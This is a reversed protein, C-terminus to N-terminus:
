DDSGPRGSRGASRPSDSSAEEHLRQVVREPFSPKDALAAMAVEERQSESIWGADALIGAATAFNDFFHIETPHGELRAAEERLLALRKEKSVQHILIMAVRDPHALAAEIYIPVDHQSTDGLFITPKDPYWSFIQRIADLKHDRHSRKLWKDEDLGWDTMFFPGSPLGNLEFVHHLLGHLNYPSSTVYALPNLHGADPRPGRRLHRYLEVVGPFLQRTLANGLLTTALMSLIKGAHTVLVTDDVDSLIVLDPDRAPCELPWTASPSVESEPLEILLEDSIVSAVPLDIEFYGERDTRKAVAEGGASIQVLSYPREPTCWRRLMHYLNVLVPDDASPHPWTRALLTRGKVSVGKEHRIAYYIEAVMPKGLRGTIRALFRHFADYVKEAQLALKLVWRRRPKPQLPTVILPSQCPVGVGVGAEDM